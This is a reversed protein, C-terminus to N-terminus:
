GERTNEREQLYRDIDDRRFRWMRRVKIATIEKGEVMKRLTERSVQLHHRAEKETLLPAPQGTKGAQTPDIWGPHTV